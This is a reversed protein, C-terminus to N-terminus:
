MHVSDVGLGKTLMAHYLHEAPAGNEALVGMSELDELIRDVREGAGSLHAVQACTAHLALLEPSPLTFQAPDSSVFTATDPTGYIRKNTRIKYCHPTDTREFWMEMRDFLDYMNHELTIVNFLSHLKPGSLESPRYGFHNLVALVKASYDRKDVTQEDSFEDRDKVEVKLNTSELEPVIHACLTHVAGGAAIAVEETLNPANVDYRGTVICRYSDRILAQQKAEAHSKPAETITTRPRDNKDEDFSRRSPTSSDPTSGRSRMFPRIFYNIFSEGLQSLLVYDRDCSHIVKAIEHRANDSPAHLILYGLVRAHMIDQTLSNHVSHSEFALCVDYANLDNGDLSVNNSNPLATM